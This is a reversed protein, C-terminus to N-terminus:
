SKAYTTKRKPRTLSEPLFSFFFKSANCIGINTQICNTVALHRREIRKALDLKELTESNPVTKLWRIDQLKHFAFDVDM